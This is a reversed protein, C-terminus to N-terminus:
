IVDLTEQWYSPIMGNEPPIKVSVVGGNLLALRDDEQSFLHGKLEYM